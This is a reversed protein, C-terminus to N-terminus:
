IVGEFFDLIVDDKDADDVAHFTCIGSDFMELIANSAFANCAFAGNYIDGDDNMIYLQSYDNHLGNINYGHDSIATVVDNYFDKKEDENYTHAGCNLSITLETQREDFKLDLEYIKTEM